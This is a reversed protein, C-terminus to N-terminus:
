LSTGTIKKGQPYSINKILLVACFITILNILPIIFIAPVVNVDNLAMAVIKATLATMLISLFIIYTTGALYGVPKMKIFLLGSIFALPLLLGLDMGQVILTTYHELASPYLSGNVLPPVIISLWLFAILISNAILFGGVFKNPTKFSFNNTLTSIDFRLLCTLLAFFSLSLLTVYLLFLQNYMAMATYFLFTVFFYGLTGALIFQSRLSGKRFGYLSILLLPIGVFLSIYDQAIGQIAVDASMHRYIGLGYIKVDDGRISEYNYNGPGNHSFIGFSTTIGSLCVIIIVLITIINKQRM